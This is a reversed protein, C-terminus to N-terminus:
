GRARAHAAALRARAADIAVLPGIATAALRPELEGAIARRIRRAWRRGLWYAHAGLLRALIYGAALAGGLVLLPTPVPGLLPLVVTSIDVRGFAIIAIWLAAFILAATVIYQSLGILVWAVSTPPPGLPTAAARDLAAAIQADIARPEFIAAVRPRMPSPAATLAEAVLARLPQTVRALTGRERWRRLYAAPDAKVSARGSWRYVFATLPGLPGAGRPRAALRTASVAQRELGRMDLLALAEAVIDRLASARRAAPLLEGAGTAVGAREALERIAARAEAAIREAVIRKADAGGAIWARLREIGAEGGAASSSIVEIAGRDGPLAAALDRRIREADAPGLRDSKNVVVLQRELRPMWRRMYDDHLVADQYKEPDAVWVVADVRPLLEDVKARHEPVISDLDPLDLVAVGAARPDDHEHTERVGLWELLPALEDRAARPVWAVPEATTPRRAAVRSVTTGAIANLLSSKGVGTGGALALVYTSGPFRLRDRAIDRTANAESADLGLEGAAAIADALADLQDALTV